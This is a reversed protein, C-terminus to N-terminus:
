SPQEETEVQQEVKIEGHGGDFREYVVIPPTLYYMEADYDYDGGTDDVDHTDNHQRTVLSDVKSEIRVVDSKLLAIESRFFSKVLSLRHELYGKIESFLDSPREQRSPSLRLADKATAEVHVIVGVNTHADNAMTEDEWAVSGGSLLFDKLIKKDQLLENAIAPICEYVLVALPLVFGMYTHTTESENKKHLEEAKSKIAWDLQKLLNNHSYTGWPFQKFAEMDDVLGILFEDIGYTLKEGNLLIESVFLLLAMKLKEDNRGSVNKRGRKKTSQTGMSSLKQMVNEISIGKRKKKPFHRDIFPKPNVQLDDSITSCNLESILAYEMLLFRIPKGNVVFWIEHRGECCAQRILLLWMVQSSYEYHDPVDLFHGFPSQEKFWQLDELDNKVAEKICNITLALRSKTSIKCAFYENPELIPTLCPVDEVQPHDTQTNEKEAQPHDTQTNEKEAQPHDPHTNKKEVLVIKFM